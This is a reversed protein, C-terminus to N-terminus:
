EVPAKNKIPRTIMRFGKSIEPQYCIAHLETIQAKLINIQTEYNERQSKISHESHTLATELISITENKSDLMRKLYSESRITEGAKFIPKQPSPQSLLSEIRSKHEALSDKLSQNEEELAKIRADREALVHADALISPFCEEKNLLVPLNSSKALRNNAEELLKKYEEIGIEINAVPKNKITKVSAGFRLTSITEITNYLSPSCTIILCTKSNGGLSDTLIRTLKSDRYPIHSNHETLSKIVNGLASLSKNTHQAELLTHGTAGTKSVKESGALDVIVLRSQKTEGSIRATQEVNVMLVSHSRSSKDNMRTEGISRNSNGLDIVGMIDEYSNVPQEVVNQIWIGARYGGERLKLNEETPNLLDRIKELYIEVFSVTITYLVDSDSELIANFIERIIRPTIGPEIETGMVTHTKGSGSQGYAFITCNFGNLVDAVMPKVADTYVDDQTAREPFIKDFTFVLDEIAVSNEVIKKPKGSVSSTKEVTKELANKPRFRCCVRIEDTM